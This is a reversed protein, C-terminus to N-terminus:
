FFNINTPATMFTYFLVHTVRIVALVPSVSFASQYHCSSLQAQGMLGRLKAPGTLWSFYPFFDRTHRCAVASPFTNQIKFCSCHVAIISGTCMKGTNQLFTLHTKHTKSTPSTFCFSHVIVYKLWTPRVELNYFVHLAMGRPTGGARLGGVEWGVM